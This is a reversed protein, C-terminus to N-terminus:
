KVGLVKVANVKVDDTDTEVYTVQGEKRKSLGYRYAKDYYDLVIRIAKAFDDHRVAEIAEKTRDGGLRKTIRTISAIITEKPFSTYEKILRPLRTEVSMMIAVVPAEQMRKYFFEPMFVTGINRSEDEIWIIEESKKESLDKFLLNAFYETSPQGPQGLAGFASGKHSAIAELDTVQHGL